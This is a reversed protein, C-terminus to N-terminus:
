NSPLIVHFAAGKNEKSEAFIVGNHNDVIKRCLALGIGTGPFDHTDNLRQFIIFIQEAYEASFGIGNDKVIIECYNTNANLRPYQNINSKDFERATITIVPKRKNQTFKLANSILNHFLQEMQVPIAQIVPLKEYNITAKKEKIIEEFDTLVNKIIVGLNTKKIETERTTKSFNLLDDILRSMRQTSTTIKEVYGKDKDPLQNAFHSQLQDSFTM